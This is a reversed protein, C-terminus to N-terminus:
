LDPLDRGELYEEVAEALVDSIKRNELAALVKVRKGDDPDLYVAMRRYLIGGELEVADSDDATIVSDADVVCQAACEGIM